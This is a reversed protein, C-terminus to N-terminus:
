LPHRQRLEIRIVRPLGPVFCPGLVLCDVLYSHSATSLQMTCVFGYFSRQQDQELDLACFPEQEVEEVQALPYM